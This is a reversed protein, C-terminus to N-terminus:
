HNAGENRICTEMTPRWGIVCKPNETTKTVGVDGGGGRALETRAGNWIHKKTVWRLMAAIAAIIGRGALYQDRTM